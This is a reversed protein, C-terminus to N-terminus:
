FGRIMEKDDTQFDSCKSSFDNLIITTIPEITSKIVEECVSCYYICQMCNVM